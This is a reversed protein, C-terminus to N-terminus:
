KREAMGWDLPRGDEEVIWTKRKVKKEAPEHPENALNVKIHHEERM